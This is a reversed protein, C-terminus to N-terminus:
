IEQGLELVTKANTTVAAVPTNGTPTSSETKSCAVLFLAAAGAVILRNM